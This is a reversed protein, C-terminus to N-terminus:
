AARFQWGEGFRFRRVSAFRAARFGALCGMLAPPAAPRVPPFPPWTPVGPRDAHSPLAPGCATRDGPGGAVVWDGAREASDFALRLGPRQVLQYAQLAAGGESVARPSARPSGLHVIGRVQGPM